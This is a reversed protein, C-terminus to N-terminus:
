RRASRTERANEADTHSNGYVRARLLRSFWSLLLAGILLPVVIDTIDRV